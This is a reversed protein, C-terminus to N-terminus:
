AATQGARLSARGCRLLVSMIPLGSRFFSLKAALALALATDSEIAFAGVRRAVAFSIGGGGGGSISAAIDRLPAGIDAEGSIAGEGPMAGGLM